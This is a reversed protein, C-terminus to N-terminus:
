KGQHGGDKIVKECRFSVVKGWLLNEYLIIFACPRM